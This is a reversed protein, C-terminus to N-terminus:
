VTIFMQWFEDFQVNSNFKIIHLNYPLLKKKVDLFLLYPFVKSIGRPRFTVHSSLYKVWHKMLRAQQKPWIPFYEFGKRLATCKIGGAFARCAAFTKVFCQEQTSKKLKLFLLQAILSYFYYSLFVTHTHKHTYSFAILHCQTPWRSSVAEFHWLCGTPYLFCVLFNCSLFLENFHWKRRPM